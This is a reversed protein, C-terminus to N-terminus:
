LSGSGCSLQLSLQLSLQWSRTAQPVPRLSPVSWCAARAFTREVPTARRTVRPEARNGVPNRGRIRRLVAVVARSRVASARPELHPPPEGGAPRPNPWDFAREIPAHMCNCSTASPAHMGIRRGLCACAHLQGLNDDAMSGLEVCAHPAMSRMCPMCPIRRRM